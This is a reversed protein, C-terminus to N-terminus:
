MIVTVKSILMLPCWMRVYKNPDRDFQELHEAPCLMRAMQPHFMGYGLEKTADVPVPPELVPVKLVYILYTQINTKLTTIDNGRAENVGKNM